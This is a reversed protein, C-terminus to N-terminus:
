MSIHYPNVMYMIVDHHIWWADPLDQCSNKSCSSVWHRIRADREKAKRPWWPQGLASSSPSVVDSSLHFSPFGTEWDLSPYRPANKHMKEIAFYWFYIQAFSFPRVVVKSPIMTLFPFYGLITQNWTLSDHWNTWFYRSHAMQIWPPNFWHYWLIDCQDIGSFGPAMGLWWEGHVM